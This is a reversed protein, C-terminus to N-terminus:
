GKKDITKLFQLVKKMDVGCPMLKFFRNIKTQHYHHPILGYTHVKRIEMSLLTFLYVRGDEDRLEISFISFDLEHLLERNIHCTSQVKHNYLWYLKAVTIDRCAKAAIDM